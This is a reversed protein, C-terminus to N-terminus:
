LARLALSRAVAMLGTIEGLRASYEHFHSLNLENHLFPTRGKPLRAIIERAPRTKMIHLLPMRLMTIILLLAGSLRESGIGCFRRAIAGFETMAGPEIIGPM